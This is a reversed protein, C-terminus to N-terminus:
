YSRGAAVARRDGQAAAMIKVPRRVAVGDAEHLIGVRHHGDAGVVIEPQGVAAAFGRFLDGGAAPVIAGRSKGGVAFIQGIEGHGPLAKLRILLIQHDVIKGAAFGAVQGGGEVARDRVKGPRGIGALEVKIHGMMAATAQKLDISVAALWLQEQVLFVDAGQRHVRVAFRQHQVDLGGIHGILQEAEVDGFLM